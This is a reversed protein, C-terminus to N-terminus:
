VTKKWILKTQRHPFYDLLVISQLERYSLFNRVRASVQGLIRDYGGNMGMNIFVWLYGTKAYFNDYACNESINTKYILGM